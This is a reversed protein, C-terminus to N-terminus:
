QKHPWLPWSIHQVRVYLARYLYFYGISSYANNAWERVHLHYSKHLNKWFHRKALFLFTSLPTKDGEYVKEEFIKLLLFHCVLVCLVTPRELKVTTCYQISAYLLLFFGIRCHSTQAFFSKEEREKRRNKPQEHEYTPPAVIYWKRAYIM